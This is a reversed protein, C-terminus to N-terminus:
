LNNLKFIEDKCDLISSNIIYVEYDEGAVPKNNHCFDELWGNPKWDADARESAFQLSVEIANRQAEKIAAIVLNHNVGTIPLASSFVMKSQLLEEAKRLKIDM